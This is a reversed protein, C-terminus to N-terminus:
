RSIKVSDGKVTLIHELQVKVTDPLQYNNISKCKVQRITNGRGRSYIHYIEQEQLLSPFKGHCDMANQETTAAYADIKECSLPLFDGAVGGSNIWGLM